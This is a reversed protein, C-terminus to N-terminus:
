STRVTAGGLRTGFEILWAGVRPAVARHGARRGSMPSGPAASRRTAGPGGTHVPDHGTRRRPRASAILDRRHDDALSQVARAQIM